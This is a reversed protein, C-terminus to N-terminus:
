LRAGHDGSWGTTSDRPEYPVGDGRERVVFMALAAVAFSASGIAWVEMPSPGVSWWWEAAQGLNFSLVDQGTVYRRINAHLAASNSAVLITYVAATQGLRLGPPCAGRGLLAVGVFTTLLPLLYRPQVSDGVLNLSGQLIALPLVVLSGGVVALALAKALWLERLGTALVVGLIVIGGVYVMAPMDTDLWGLPWRLGYVGAFIAPLETMNHFLVDGADREYDEGFGQVLVDAQSGSMYSATGIIIAMAPALLRWRHERVHPWLAVGFGVIALVVYAGADSRSAGAMAAGTLLLASSVVVKWRSTATLLAYMSLWTVALGTIAWSSPNISAVIFAGLPIFTALNALVLTRRGAPPMVLTVVGVLAVAAFSNFFRVTLVSRTVDEGVFAHMFRYYPGPYGGRDIRESPVLLDSRLDEVCAASEDPRFAYCTSYRVLEPVYAGVVSGGADRYLLCGSDEIPPPCWISSQHYDDDPSSGLPSSFAWAAAAVLLAALILMGGAIRRLRHWFRDNSM